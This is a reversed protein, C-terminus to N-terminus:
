ERDNDIDQQDANFIDPCNDALGFYGDKDKDEGTECADGILNQNFDKQDRNKVDPCNDCVDGIGDNDKDNQDPNFTKPCNDKHNPIVKDNDIDDDCEDGIGDDDMDAQNSNPEDPCNDCVDGVLDFDKDKQALNHKFECNDFTICERFTKVKCQKADKCHLFQEVARAAKIESCGPKTGWIIDDNDPDEDCADGKGDNDTDEQGNNPIDLCNDAFCNIEECDLGKDPIEDGDTDEDCLIGNGAFGNGCVCKGTEIRDAHPHCELLFFKILSFFLSFM